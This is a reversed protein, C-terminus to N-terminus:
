SSLKVAGCDRCTWFMTEMWRECRPCVWGDEREARPDKVVIEKETGTVSRLIKKVVKGASGDGQDKTTAPLPRLALCISCALHLSSPNMYTCTSCQWGRAEAAENSRTSLARKKTRAPSRSCSTTANTSTSSCPTESVIILDPSNDRSNISPGDAEQKVAGKETTAHNDSLREPVYVDEIDSDDEEFTLDIMNFRKSDKDAAEIAQQVDRPLDSQISGGEGKSGGPEEQLNGTGERGGCGKKARLRKEAADALIQGRRRGDLGTNTKSGGLVGGTGLVRRIRDQDEIRKLAKERASRLGSESMPDTGVGVRQGTGAFSSTYGKLHFSDYENWLKDLTQDFIEDHPGRVNHTLEHLMTGILSNELPLFSYPDEQPRLRLCIKQGRNVNIGLLNPNTPFFESLIPLNWGHAVMIPKVRTHITKLLQLAKDSDPQSKLVTMEDVEGAPGRARSRGSGGGRPM